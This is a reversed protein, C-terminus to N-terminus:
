LWSLFLVLWQLPSPPMVAETPAYGAPVTIEDAFIVQANANFGFLLLAVPLFRLINKMM